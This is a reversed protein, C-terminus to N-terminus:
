YPLERVYLSRFWLNNGHNQLEIQESRPLPKGPAWYNELPSGDVVLKGNLHITVKEGIMRIHFTNWEGLPKDALVLPDKGPGKNNWMGGSGKQNGHPFQAPNAPDWIQIQPTGRLYIGSDATAPIKWDVYFDFDGYPKATALSSGKGDFVLAGDEVKWHAKMVENAATQVKTREEPSLAARKFPNDNPGAPLGQWGALDKGNFLATFGAPPTNPATGPLPAAPSFDKVRINKYAVFDGHGCFALYGKTRKQGPHEKKDIPELGGIYADTITEGNLIVKIHDGIVLLTQKNWEGVPKLLNKEAQISAAIGYISGHYQYPTLKFKDNHYKEHRDDLVQIEMGEYAADGSGPYRVGIGNNSGPQLQFELELVFDAYEKETRLFSGKPTCTIAGDKVEYGGGVWGALSKGDFLSTWDTIGALMQLTPAAAPMPPPAPQAFASAALVTLAAGTSALNRLM